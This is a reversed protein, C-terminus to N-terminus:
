LKANTYGKTNDIREFYSIIALSGVMILAGLWFQLSVGWGFFLFGLLVNLPLKLYDFPQIFIADAAAYAKAIAYQAIATFFGLALLWLLLHTDPYFFHVTLSTLNHSVALLLNIPVMLIYMYSVMTLPHDKDALYKLLLSHSAWFIAAILPFIALWNFNQVRPNLIILTGIFGTLTAFARISTLREKLFLFAGLSAFIPSTMLLAVGEGIPFQETLAYIWFQIGLVAVIIRWFHIKFHHTYFVAKLGLCIFYPFIFLLAFLYQYFAIWNSTLLPYHGGLYPTIVNIIAFTIGALVMWLAGYLPPNRNPRNVLLNIRNTSHDRAFCKFGRPMKVRPKPFPEVKKM